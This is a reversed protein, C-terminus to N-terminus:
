MKKCEPLRACKELGLVMGATPPAVNFTHLNIVKGITSSDKGLSIAIEKKSKNSNLGSDISFRDTLTLHSM